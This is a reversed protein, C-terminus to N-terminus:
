QASAPTKRRILSVFCGTSFGILAFFLGSMLGMGLGLLLWTRWTSPFFDIYPCWPCVIHSEFTFWSYPSAYFWFAPVFGIVFGIRGLRKGLKMDALRALM